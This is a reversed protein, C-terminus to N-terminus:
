TPDFPASTILAEAAKREGHIVIAKLERVLHQKVDALSPTVGFQSEWAAGLRNAQQMTMEITITPM